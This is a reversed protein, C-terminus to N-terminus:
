NRIRNLLAKAEIGLFRAVGKIYVDSVESRPGNHLPIPYTRANHRIKWHTGSSPEDITVGEITRLVAILDRFKAPM